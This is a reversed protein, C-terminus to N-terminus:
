KRIWLRITNENKEFLKHKFEIFTLKLLDDMTKNMGYSIEKDWDHVGLIDGPKLYAGYRIVEKIKNGNDLFLLKKRKDNCLKCLKMCRFEDLIDEHHFNIKSMAENKINPKRPNPIDFTHIEANPYAEHLILTMGGWSTGTELILKPAFSNVIPQILKPTNDEQVAQVSFKPYIKSQYELRLPM